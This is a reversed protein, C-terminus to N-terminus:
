LETVNQSLCFINYEYKAYKFSDPRWSTEYLCANYYHLIEM